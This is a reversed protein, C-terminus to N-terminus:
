KAIEKIPTEQKKNKPKKGLEKLPLPSNIIDRVESDRMLGLMTRHVNKIPLQKIYEMVLRKTGDRFEKMYIEPTTLVEKKVDAFLMYIKKAKRDEYDEVSLLNKKNHAIFFQRKRTEYGKILEKSPLNFYVKTLSSIGGKNIIKPYVTFYPKQNRKGFQYPNRVIIFPKGCSLNKEYDITDMMNIKLHVLPIIGSDIYSEDPVTFIMILNLFRQSQVNQVLARSARQYWERRALDLGGEDFIIVSGKKLKGKGEASALIEIIADKSKFVINDMNFNKDLEEALSMMAYSKGSGTEGVCIIIYNKNKKHVRTKIHHVIGGWWYPNVM